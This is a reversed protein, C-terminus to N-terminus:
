VILVHLVSCPFWFNWVWVPFVLYSDGFKDRWKMNLLLLFLSLIEWFCFFPVGIKILILAHLAYCFFVFLFGYRISISTAMFMIMFISITGGHTSRLRAPTACQYSNATAVIEWQYSNLLLEGAGARNSAKFLPFFIFLPSPFADPVPIQLSHDLWPSVCFLILKKSYACHLHTNYCLRFYNSEAEFIITM